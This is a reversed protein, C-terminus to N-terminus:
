LNQIAYQTINLHNIFVGSRYYQGTLNINKIETWPYTGCVSSGVFPNYTWLSFSGIPNRQYYNTVKLVNPYTFTFSGGFYLGVPDYLTIEAIPIQREGLKNAIRVAAAGGRSHGYLILQNGQKFGEELYAIIAKDGGGLSSWFMRGKQEEVVRKLAPNGSANAGGAGYIGVITTKQKDELFGDPRHLSHNLKTISM